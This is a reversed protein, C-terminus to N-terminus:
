SELVQRVRKASVSTPSPYLVVGESIVEWHALPYVLSVKELTQKFKYKFKRKVTINEGFREYLWDWSVTIPYRLGHMSATLWVYVDYALVSRGNLLVVAARTDFPASDRALREWVQESLVFALSGDAADEFDRVAEILPLYLTDSMVKDGVRNIKHISIRAALLRRLQVRMQEVTRGGHGLGIEDCLRNVSHIIIMHKSPVVFATEKDGAARIQKSMWAMVLRPYKGFPFKREKSVSDVGAELMYEYSGNTKMVYDPDNKPETAPFLASTLLTHGYWIEKRSPERNLIDSVKYAQQLAKEEASNRQPYAGEFNEDLVDVMRELTCAVM